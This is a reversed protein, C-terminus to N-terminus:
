KDGHPMESEVRRLPEPANAIVVLTAAHPKIPIYVEKM